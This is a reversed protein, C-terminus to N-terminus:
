EYWKEAHSAALENYSEADLAEWKSKVNKDGAAIRGLYSIVLGYRQLEAKYQNTDPIKDILSKMKTYALFMSAVSYKLDEM